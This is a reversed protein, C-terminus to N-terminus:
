EDMSHGGLNLYDTAAPIWMIAIAWLTVPCMECFVWKGHPLGALAGLSFRGKLIETILDAKM